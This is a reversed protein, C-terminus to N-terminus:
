QSKQSKEFIKKILISKKKYSDFIEFQGLITWFQGFNDLIQGLTPVPHGSWRPPGWGGSTVRGLYVWNKSRKVRSYDWGDLISGPKQGKKSLNSLM